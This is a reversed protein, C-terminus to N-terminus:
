IVAALVCADNGAHVCDPMKKHWPLITGLKCTVMCEVNGMTYEIHMHMPIQMCINVFLLM